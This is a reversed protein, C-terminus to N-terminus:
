KRLGFLYDYEDFDELSSLDMPKPFEGSCNEDENKITPVVPPVSDNEPLDLTEEEDNRSFFFTNISLLLSCLLGLTLWM